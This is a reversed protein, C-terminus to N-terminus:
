SKAEARSIAIRVDDVAYHYGGSTEDNAEVWEKVAAAVREAKEARKEAGALKAVCHAHANEEHKLREEARAGFEIAAWLLNCASGRVEKDDSWEIEGVLKSFEELTLM